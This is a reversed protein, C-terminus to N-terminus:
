HEVSLTYSKNWVPVNGIASGSIVIEVRRNQGRGAVNANSALPHSTGMGRATVTGSKLGAHIFADRVEEAREAALTQAETSAVDSYGDVEVVLGPTRSIMPAIRSLVRTVSDNPIDGRFDADHILIVLGRPADILEAATGVAGQMQELLASRTATQQQNLNPPPTQRVVPPPAEPEPPPPPTAPATLAVRQARESELAEREANAQDNAQEAVAQAQQARAEAEERLKQEHAVRDQASAIEANQKRTMTLQRADEATQAAERAVTVVMSRGAKRAELQRANALEQEAKAIVEPAYLSAGQSQAIQVANQAQYIEVIQEYKDM